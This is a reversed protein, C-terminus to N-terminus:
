LEVLVEGHLCGFWGEEAGVWKRWGEAMKKLDGESVWGGELARRRTEGEECRDIMTGGWVEREERSSYCWCGASARVKERSVGCELVWGVLRTGADVHAGNGEMVKRLM